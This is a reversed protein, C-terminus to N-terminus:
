FLGNNKKQETLIRTAAAQLQEALEGADFTGVREVIQMLAGNREDNLKEISRLIKNTDTLTLNLAEIQRAIVNAATGIAVLKNLDTM